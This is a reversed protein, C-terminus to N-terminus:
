HGEEKIRQCIEDTADKNASVGGGVTLNHKEVLGLFDEFFADFEKQSVLGFGGLAPDDKYVLLKIDYVNM